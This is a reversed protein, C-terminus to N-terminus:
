RNLQEEIPQPTSSRKKPDDQQAQAFLPLLLQFFKGYKVANILDLFNLPSGDVDSQEKANSISEFWIKMRRDMAFIYESAFERSVENTKFLKKNIKTVTILAKISTAAASHKGFFINCAGAFFKLKQIIEIFTTPAKVIQKNSVKIGDVTCGKGQTLIVHLIFHHNQQEALQIPKAEIM